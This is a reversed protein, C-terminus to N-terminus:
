KLKLIKHLKKIYADAYAQMGLDNPHIFDVMGDKPMNIDNISLYYVGKVGESRLRDYAKKQAENIGEVNKRNPANTASHGEGPHEALLIPTSPNAKRIQKVAEFVLREIETPEVYMNPMCDIIYIRAPIKNIYDLVAPELKGNGSFGLDVVPLGLTRSVITPWAMAPRSACAGHAISTGYVVIPLADDAGVFTFRSGDSVGIEMWKVSNYLPLYLRYNHEGDLNTYKYTVTDAFNYTGICRNDGGDYLDVGSIGTDPMHPMSHRGALIYRVTIQPSNTCFNISVGASNRSLHWVDARIKERADDPLRSYNNISFGRGGISGPAESLPNHWVTSQAISDGPAILCAWAIAAFLPTRLSKNFNRM